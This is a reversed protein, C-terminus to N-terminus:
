IPRNDDKDESQFQPLLLLYTLPYWLVAATFSGLFFGWGPFEAGGALRVLVTVVQMALLLPLLHLAQELFSFWLVRRSLTGAGYALLVYSLAHQGMLTADAVDMFIGLAFASAMGVKYPERICWFALVLAVWDPMGPVMGSPMLNLFLAIVLSLVIFWPRVPRLIRSSSHTPQM